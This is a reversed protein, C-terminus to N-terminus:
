NTTKKPRNRGLKDHGTAFKGAVVATTSSLDLALAFSAVIEALKRVKGDGQCGIMALGEQQTPLATGGGVSGVLLSPFTISAEIGGGEGEHKVVDYQVGAISDSVCAVDQGTAMFIAALTNGPNIHLGGGSTNKFTMRKAYHLFTLYDESTVGLHKNLAKEPIVCKAQTAMGRTTLINLAGPKKDMTANAEVWAHEISVDPIENSIHKMIWSMAAWSCVTAVNQGCADATNYQFVIHVAQFM